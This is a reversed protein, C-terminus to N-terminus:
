SLLSGVWWARVCGNQDIGWTATCRRALAPSLWGVVVCARVYTGAFALNVEGGDLTRMVMVPPEHVKALEMALLFTLEHFTPRESADEEWCM